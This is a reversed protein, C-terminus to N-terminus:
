EDLGPVMEYHIETIEDYPPEIVWILDFRRKPWEIRGWEGTEEAYGLVGLAEAIAELQRHEWCILVNGPGEFRSARDAAKDEDDRDVSDHIRQGLHRALPKMTEYPRSRRGDRRSRQAMIYGINYDSDKGFVEVLAKARQRGIHSLGIPDYGHRDKRPKEGHRIM